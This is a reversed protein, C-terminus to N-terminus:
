REHSGGKAFEDIAQREEEKILREYYEEFVSFCYDPAMLRWKDGYKTAIQECEALATQFEKERKEPNWNACANVFWALLCGCVIAMFFRFMQEEKNDKVANRPQNHSYCLCTLIVLYEAKVTRNLIKLFLFPCPHVRVM